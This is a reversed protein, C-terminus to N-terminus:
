FLSTQLHIHDWASALGCVETGQQHLDKTMCVMSLWGNLIQVHDIHTSPRTAHLSLTRQQDSTETDGQPTRVILGFAQAIHSMWNFWHPLIRANGRDPDSKHHIYLLFYVFTNTNNMWSLSLVISTHFASLNFSRAQVILSVLIAFATILISTSQKEVTKLEVLDVKGDNMIAYFAPAFSLFNQVYIATRVGIGGIDPNGPIPCSM